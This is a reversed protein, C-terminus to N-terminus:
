RIGNEGSFVAYVTGTETYAKLLFARVSHPPIARRTAPPHRIPPTYGPLTTPTVAVLTCTCAYIGGPVICIVFVTGDPNILNM